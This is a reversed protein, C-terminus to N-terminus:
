PEAAIARRQRIKANKPPPILPKIDHRDCLEYIKQDDYAGDARFTEIDAPDLQAICEPFLESDKYAPITVVACVIEQTEADIGLHLKRWTRRKSPGHTRTSWEGDGHVKLGTSDLILHRPGCDSSMCVQKMNLAKLRRCLTTYCPVELSAHVLRLLSALFGQTARLTLKFQFRLHLACQIALDSYQNSAGKKGTKETAYWDSLVAEDIWLTLSGRGILIKNYQSWNRPRYVKKGSM